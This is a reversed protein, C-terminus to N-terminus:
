LLVHDNLVPPHSAVELIGPLHSAPIHALLMHGLPTHSVLALTDAPQAAHDQAASLLLQVLSIEEASPAVVAAKDPTAQAQTALIAASLAAALDVPMDPVAAPLTPTGVSLGGNELGAVAHGIAL